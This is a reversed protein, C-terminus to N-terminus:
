KNYKEWESTLRAQNKQCWALVKTEVKTPLQGQIVEANGIAVMAAFDPGIVHVHPPNHDGPYIRIVYEGFDEIKPM